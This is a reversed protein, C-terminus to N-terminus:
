RLKEETIEHISVKDEHWIAVVQMVWILALLTLVVGWVWGPPQLRDLLLWTTASVWFPYRSPLQNYHVVKRRKM